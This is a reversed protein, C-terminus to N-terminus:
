ELFPNLVQITHYYQGHSLDESFIQSCKMREAAAVILADWYSIQYRISTDVARFVLVRDLEVAPVPSLSTIIRMVEAATLPQQIKRTMIVFFESLVQTSVVMSEMRIGQKLLAQARDQRTSEHTDFAYVLVNTDFFIKDVM